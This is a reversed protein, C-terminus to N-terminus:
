FGIPRVFFSEQWVGGAPISQLDPYKGEHALNLGNTIATMPEICVFKQKPPAFIVAIQFRRGFEVALTQGRASITLSTRGSREPMLDTFGDDFIHDRLSVQQPFMADVLKGTAVLQADTEVHKRAPIHLSWESRPVDPIQFYPHYGVVVPMERAGVNNITTKVEVAGDALRYTMEYEHAFPWNAMLEPYKWFRLRSTVHASREDASVDIVEWLPSATLMGHIAIGQKDVRVPGIGPNFLYHSENWWFGDRLRNAWPALFPIGNLPPRSSSKLAAVNPLNFYLIERGHVQLQYARNGVSPAVSVVMERESDALRVMPIGHDVTQVASYPSAARALPPLCLIFLFLRPSPKTTLNRPARIM